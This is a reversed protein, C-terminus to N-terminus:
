ALVCHECYYKRFSFDTNQKSYVSLPQPKVLGAALHLCFPVFEDSKHMPFSFLPQFQFTDNTVSVLFYFSIRTFDQLQLTRMNFMLSRVKSKSQRLPLLLRGNGPVRREPQKQVNTKKIRQLQSKLHCYLPITVQEYHRPKQHVKSVRLSPFPVPQDASNEFSHVM